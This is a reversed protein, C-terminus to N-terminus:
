VRYNCLARNIALEQERLYIEFNNIVRRVCDDTIEEINTIENSVILYSNHILLWGIIIYILSFFLIIFIILDQQSKLDFIGLIVVILIMFIATLIVIYFISYGLQTATIQSSGGVKSQICNYFDNSISSLNNKPKLKEYENFVQLLIKLGIFNGRGPSIDSFFRHLFAVLCLDIPIPLPQTM